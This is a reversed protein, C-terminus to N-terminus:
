TILVCSSQKRSATLNSAAAKEKVFLTRASALTNHDLCSQKADKTGSVVSLQDLTTANELVGGVAHFRVVTHCLGSGAVQERQRWVLTLTCNFLWTNKKQKNKKRAKPQLNLPQPNLEAFGPLLYLFFLMLFRLCLCTM